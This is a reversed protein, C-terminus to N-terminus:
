FRLLGGSTHNYAYGGFKERVHSENSEKLDQVIRWKTAQHNRLILKNTELLSGMHYYYLVQTMDDGHVAENHDCSERM